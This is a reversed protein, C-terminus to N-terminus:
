TGDLDQADVKPRIKQDLKCVFNQSLRIQEQKEEGAKQHFKHLVARTKSAIVSELAAVSEAQVRFLHEHIINVAERQEKGIAERVDDSVAKTLDGANIVLTNNQLQILYLM